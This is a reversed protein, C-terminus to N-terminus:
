LLRRRALYILCIFTLFVCASFVGTQLASHLFSGMVGSAGSFVPVGMLAVVEARSPKSRKGFRDFSETARSVASSSVEPFMVGAHRNSLEQTESERTLRNAYDQIAQRLQQQAAPTAGAM